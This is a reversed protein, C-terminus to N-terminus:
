DHKQKARRIILIRAIAYASLLIGVLWLISAWIPQEYVYLFPYPGHWLRFINMTISVVAYCLTPILTIKADNAKLQRATFARLSIIGLVPCLSHTYLLAGNTLLWILDGVMWSLVFLVIVLTITTTAVASYHILQVSRPIEKGKGTIIRVGFFINVLTSCLLFLNSLQTYYIFTSSPNKAIAISLGIIELVAIIANIVLFWIQKKKSVSSKM